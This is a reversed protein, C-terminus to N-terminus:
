WKDLENNIWYVYEPKPQPAPFSQSVTPTCESVRTLRATDQNGNPSLTAIQSEISAEFHTRKWKEDGEKNFIENSEYKASAYVTNTAPVIKTDLALRIARELTRM